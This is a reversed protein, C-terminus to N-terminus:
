GQGPPSARAACSGTSGVLGKHESLGVWVALCEVHCVSAERGGWAQECGGGCIQWLSGWLGVVHSALLGLGGSLQPLSGQLLVAKVM